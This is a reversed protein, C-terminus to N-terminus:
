PTVTVSVLAPLTKQTAHGSATTAVTPLATVISGANIKLARFRVEAVNGAAIVGKGTVNQTIFIMGAPAVVKKSITAPKDGAAFIRGAEVDVVELVSQDYKLQVPLSSLADTASAKLTLKITEGVKISHSPAWELVPADFPRVDIQSPAATNAAADPIREIQPAVPQQRADKERTPAASYSNAFPKLRPNSETGSRFETPVQAPPALGRILRPTISLLLETKQKDDKQGSFLRGLVPLDGLGPIGQATKRESDNILGGLIQTEGDRLRLVTSANRSGIQYSLSGSQSLVEKVVSSVELALKISIEDNAYITPEVDVKLGVDVYQVNESVFGTSTSTTTIVPVRDGIKIQAKERHHTRIRPTALINTDGVERRMKLVMPSVAAGTTEKTINALDHLTVTKGSSPLPTLTLQDPFQIGLELLRSRQVEIVEVELMVEPEAIDQTAVLREALRIMTPTDRLIILNLKEDIFLNKVKLVTKLMSATQKAESNSLFFSKVILEQHDNQKAATNPYILITNDNLVQRDLQHTSLLVDLADEVTVHRLFVTTPLNAPVDKDIVFNLNSHRALVEVIQRLNGDRFELSVTRRFTDRLAIPLAQNRGLKEDIKSQLTRAEHHQPSEQFIRNLKAEAADLNGSEFLTRAEALLAKTRRDQELSALGLMASSNTADFSLVRRYTGEAQDLRGSAREHQADTLLRSAANERATSLQLRYELNDPAESVAMELSRVGAEIQGSSLLKLGERHSAYGACGSIAPLLAVLFTGILRRLYHPDTM